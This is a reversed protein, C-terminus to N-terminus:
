DGGLVANVFEKRTKELNAILNVSRSREHKKIKSSLRKAAGYAVKAETVTAFYGLSLNLGNHAIRAQYKGYRPDFTVGRPLPENNRGRQIDHETLDPALNKPQYMSTKM